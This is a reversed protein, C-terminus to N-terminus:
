LLNILSPIIGSVTSLTHLLSQFITQTFTANIDALVKGIVWGKVNASKKCNQMTTILAGLLVNDCKMSFPKGPYMEAGKMSSRLMQGMSEIYTVWYTDQLQVPRTEGM